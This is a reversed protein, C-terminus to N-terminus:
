SEPHFHRHVMELILRKSEELSLCEKEIESRSTQKMVSEYALEAESAVTSQIDHQKYDM